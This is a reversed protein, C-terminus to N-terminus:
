PRTAKGAGAGTGDNCEGLSQHDTQTPAGVFEFGVPHEDFRGFWNFEVNNPVGVVFLHNYPRCTGICARDTIIRASWPGQSTKCVLPPEFIGSNELSALSQFFGPDTLKFTTAKVDIPFLLNNLSARAEEASCVTIPITIKADYFTTSADAPCLASPPAPPPAAALQQIKTALLRSDPVAQLTVAVEHSLENLGSVPDSKACNALLLCAIIVTLTIIKSYASARRARIGSGLAASSHIYKSKQQM